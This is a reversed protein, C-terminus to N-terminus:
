ATWLSGDDKYILTAAEVDQVDGEFTLVRAAVTGTTDSGAAAAALMVEARTGPRICANLVNVGSAGGPATLAGSIGAPVGIVADRLGGRVNPRSCNLTTRGILMGQLNMQKTQIRLMRAIDISLAPDAAPVADTPTYKGYDIGDNIADVQADTRWVSTGSAANLYARLGAANGPAVFFAAANADLFCAARLATLQSPTM